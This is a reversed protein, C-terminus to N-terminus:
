VTGATYVTSDVCIYDTKESDALLQGVNYISKFELLVMFNYVIGLMDRVCEFHVLVKLRRIISVHM